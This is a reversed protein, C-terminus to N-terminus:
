WVATVVRRVDCEVSRNIGSLAGYGRMRQVDCM